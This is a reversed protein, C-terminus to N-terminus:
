ALREIVADVLDNPTAKSNTYRVTIPASTTAYFSQPVIAWASNAISAASLATLATGSVWTAFDSTSAGYTPDNYTVRLTVTSPPTSDNVVINANVRYFGNATPTYSLVTQESTLTVLDRLVQAVKGPFVGGAANPLFTTILQRLDTVVNINGSGDTTVSCMALSNAQPANSTSWYWTGDPQLYLHYTTSPTVTTHTNDAIVVILALTGDTQTVYARGAAIDLQNAITGDKTCVCGSYVFATFLDPNLGSLVDLAQTELHNLNTANAPTTGNIWSTPTYHYVTNAM